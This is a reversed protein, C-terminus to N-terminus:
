PLSAQTRYWFGFMLFIPKLRLSDAQFPIAAKAARTSPHSHRASLEVLEQGFHVVAQWLMWSRMQSNSSDQRTNLCNRGNPMAWATATNRMRGLASSIKIHCSKSRLQAISNIFPDYRDGSALPQRRLKVEVETEAKTRSGKSQSIPSPNKPNHMQALAKAQSGKSQSIPSPNKPNHMQALVKAQSGKSQSIRRPNKPNHM